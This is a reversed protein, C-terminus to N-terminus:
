QMLVWPLFFCKKQQLVSFITDRSVLSRRALEVVSICICRQINQKSFRFSFFISHFKRHYFFHQIFVFFVNAREDSRERERPEGSKSSQGTLSIFNLIKQPGWASSFSKLCNGLFILIQEIKLQSDCHHCFTESPFRATQSVSVRKIWCFM